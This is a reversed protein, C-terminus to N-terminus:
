ETFSFTILYVYKSNPLIYLDSFFHQLFTRQFVDTVCYSTFTMGKDTRVKYIIEGFTM